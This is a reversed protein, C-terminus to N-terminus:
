YVEVNYIIPMQPPIKKLDGLLGHALHSPILFLAKDGRKLYQVGKHIGSEINEHGVEFTKIGDKKSNYCEDGNLLSVTYNMKVIAGQKISDGKSSPQYVFFRIGSNTKIFPMKHSKVYFDMEDNEKQIVQQNAKVFQDKIKVENFNNTINTNTKPQPDRCSWLVTIFLLIIIRPSM